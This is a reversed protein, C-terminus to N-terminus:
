RVAQSKKLRQLTLSHLQKLKTAIEAQTVEQIVRNLFHSLDVLDGYSTKGNKENLKKEAVKIYAKERKHYDISMTYKSPVWGKEHTPTVVQYWYQEKIRRTELPRVITGIQLSKIWKTKWEPETRLYVGAGTMIMVPDAPTNIFPINLLGQQSLTIIFGTCLLFVFILFRSVRHSPRYSPSPFHASKRKLKLKKKHSKPFEKLTQAQDCHKSGIAKWSDLLIACQCKGACFVIRDGPKLKGKTYIDLREEKLFEAHKRKDITHTHITM